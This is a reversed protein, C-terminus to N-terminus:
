QPDKLLNLPLVEERVIKPTSTSREQMSLNQLGEQTREIEVALERAKQKKLKNEQEQILREIKKAIFDMLEKKKM